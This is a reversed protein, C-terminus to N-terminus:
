RREDEIEGGEVRVRECLTASLLKQWVGRVLTGPVSVLPM